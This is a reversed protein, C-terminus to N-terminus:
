KRAQQYKDEPMAFIMKGAVTQFVRTVVVEQDKGIGSDGGEVVVMTGDELYGVGQGADKGAQIIRIKLREGPLVVPRLANNLENVNLVVLNQIQAVRNLNYDVTMLRGHYYKTLRIIKSDVDPENAFDDDVVEVTVGSERKLTNLVELGRRGKNRRLVEESDAISQLEDLVFRPVILTGNIFGTKALDLIRGDIIVSTDVVIPTATARDSKGGERRASRSEKVLAGILDVLQGISRMISERQNYFFTTVIAVSFINVILPLWQGLPDALRSLPLSILAGISLGVIVGLLTMMFVSSPVSLSRRAIALYAVVLVIIIGAFVQTM